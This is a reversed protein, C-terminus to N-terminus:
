KPRNLLIPVSDRQTDLPPAGFLKSVNESPVFPYLHISISSPSQDDEALDFVENVEVFHNGKAGPASMLMIWTMKVMTSDSTVSSLVAYVWLDKSMSRLVQIARSTSYYTVTDMQRWHIVIPVIVSDSSLVPQMTPHLPLTCYVQYRRDILKAVAADAGICKSDSLGQDYNSLWRIALCESSSSSVVRFRMTTELVNEYLPYSIVLTASGDDETQIECPFPELVTMLEAESLISDCKDTAQTADTWNRLSDLLIEIRRYSDSEVDSGTALVACVASNSFVLVAVATTLLGSSFLRCLM